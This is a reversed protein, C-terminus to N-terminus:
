HKSVGELVLEPTAARGYAINGNSDQSPLDQVSQTARTLPSAEANVCVRFDSLLNKFYQDIGFIDVGVNIFRYGWDLLQSVSYPGVVTGAIKNHRKCVEAIREFAEAIKPNNWEAPAGIGHSYDAPGFFLMDIGPLAAIEELEEMPEPDEIQVVVFRQANAQKIYDTLGVKCYAGDANGGDVARRGIPHFRTMNVVNRADKASMIHPVMIGAADLELPRVYDSYSGRPVRVM